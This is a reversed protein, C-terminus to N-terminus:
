VPSNPARPDDADWTRAYIGEGVQVGLKAASSGGLINCVCM